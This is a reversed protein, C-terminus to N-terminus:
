RKIKDGYESQFWNYWDKPRTSLIRENWSIYAKSNTRCHGTVFTASVNVGDARVYASRNHPKVWYAGKPCSGAFASHVSFLVLLHGILNLM